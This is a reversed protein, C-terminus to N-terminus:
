IRGRMVKQFQHRTLIPRISKPDTVPSCRGNVAANINFAHTGSCTPQLQVENCISNAMVGAITSHQEEPLDHLSHRRNLYFQIEPRQKSLGQGVSIAPKRQESELILRLVSVRRLHARRLLTQM